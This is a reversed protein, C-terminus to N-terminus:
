ALLEALCQLLLGSGFQAIVRYESQQLRAGGKNEQAVGQLFGDATLYGSLAEAATRAAMRAAGSTADPISHGLHALAAAIGASGATDPVSETQDLFCPWLGDPRQWLLVLSCSDQLLQAIQLHEKQFAVPLVQAARVLGLLYWAVGRSWNGFFRKGDPSELQYFANGDCLAEARTLLEALGLEILEESQNKVGQAILPYALFLMGETSIGVQDRVSGFRRKREQVFAPLLREGVVSESIAGSSGFPGVTEIGYIENSRVRSFDDGYVLDGQIAFCQWHRKIAARSEDNYEPLAASVAALGDLVCSEMWGFRQLSGLSSCCELVASFSAPLSIATEVTGAGCRPAEILVIQPKLQEPVSRGAALIWVPLEGIMMELDLGLRSALLADDAELSCEFPQCPYSCWLEVRGIERTGIRLSLVKYERDDFATAFRFVHMVGAIDSDRQLEGEFEVRVKDSGKIKVLEAGFPIWRDESPENISEADVGTTQPAQAFCRRYTSSM